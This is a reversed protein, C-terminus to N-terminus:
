FNANLLGIIKKLTKQDLGSLTLENLSGDEGKKETIEFPLKNTESKSVKPRDKKKPLFSKEVKNYIKLWDVSEHYDTDLAQLYEYKIEDILHQFSFEKSCLKSLSVLKNRLKNTSVSSYTFQKVFEMPIADAFKFNDYIQTKSYRTYGTLTVWENVGYKLGQNIRSKKYESYAYFDNYIRDVDKLSTGSDAINDIYWRVQQTKINECVLISFDKQAEKCAEARTAGDFIVIKGEDNYYGMAPKEQGSVSISTIIKQINRLIRPNVYLDVITRDEIEYWSLVVLTFNIKEVDTTSLQGEFCIPFSLQTM